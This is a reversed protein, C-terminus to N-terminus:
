RTMLVPVRSLEGQGRFGARGIWDVDITGNGRFTLILWNGSQTSAGNRRLVLLAQDPAHTSATVTGQTGYRQDPINTFTGKWEGYETWATSYGRDMRFIVQPSDAWGSLELRTDMASLDEFGYRETAVRIAGTYTGTARSWARPSMPAANLEDLILNRNSPGECGAITVALAVLAAIRQFVRM